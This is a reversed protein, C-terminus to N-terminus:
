LIYMKDMFGNSNKITFTSRDLQTVQNNNKNNSSSSKKPSIRKKNNMFCTYARTNQQRVVFMWSGTRRRSNKKQHTANKKQNPHTQVIYMDFTSMKIQNKKKATPSCSLLAMIWCRGFLLIFVFEESTQACHANVTKRILHWLIHTHAFVVRTSYLFLMSFFWVPNRLM